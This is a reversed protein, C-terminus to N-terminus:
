GIKRYVIALNRGNYYCSFLYRYYINILLNYLQNKYHYCKRIFLEIIYMTTMTTGQGYHRPMRVCLVPIVRSRESSSLRGYIRNQYHWETFDFFYVRYHTSLDMQTAVLCACSMRQMHKQAYTITGWEGLSFSPMGVHGVHSVLHQILYDASRWDHSLNETYTVLCVETM